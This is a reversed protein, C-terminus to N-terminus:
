KQLNAVIEAPRMAEELSRAIKGINKEIIFVFVKFYPM